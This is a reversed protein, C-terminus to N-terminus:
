TENGPLGLSARTVKLLVEDLVEEPVGALQAVKVSLDFQNKQLALVVKQTEHLHYELLAIREEPNM